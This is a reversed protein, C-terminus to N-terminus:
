HDDNGAQSKRWPSSRLLCKPLMARRCLKFFDPRFVLRPYQSCATILERIGATRDWYLAHNPQYGLYIQAMRLSHLAKGRVEDLGPVMAWYKRQLLQHGERVWAPYEATTKALGHVRFRAVTTPLYVVEAHQLLRLFWDLDFAYRLDEDLPGVKMALPGPVFLGPQHWSWPENEPLIINLFSINFQKTLWCRSEGELFNEVDGMLIAHSDTLYREVFSKLAGPLYLDDSNIWALLAGTSRLFGKNIAHAQGLDPESVWYTLWPSYKRIIETSGDSSGGDFVLYELDPYGQLLASRITEEIFCGQNYSPTVISIRPWPNNDPLKDPLPLCEETWPWGM